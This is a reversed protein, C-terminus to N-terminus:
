RRLRAVETRIRDALVAAPDASGLMVALGEAADDALAWAEDVQGDFQGLAAHAHALHSVAVMAEVADPGYAELQVEYRRIALELTDLRDDMGEDELSVEALDLGPPQAEVLEAPSASPPGANRGDLEARLLRQLVKQAAPHWPGQVIVRIRYAETLLDVIENRDTAFATVNEAARATEVQDGSIRRWGAAVERLMCAAEVPDGLAGYSAALNTLADLARPHGEGYVVQCLEHVEHKVPLAAAQGRARGLAISRAMLADVTDPLHSGARARIEHITTYAALAEEHRGLDGYTVAVNNWALLTDPHEPGLQDRLAAWARQELELAGAADGQLSRAVSLGVLAVLATPNTDGLVTRCAEYLQEYLDLAARADGIETYVRAAENILHWEDVDRMAAAVALVHPLHDILALPFPHERGADMQGILATLVASRLCERRAPDVDTFRAARRVLAHVTWLTGDVSPQALFRADLVALGDSVLREASDDTLDDALALARCLLSRPIPAPAVLGALRLLDGAVGTAAQVARLLTAVVSARHETPLAIRLDDALQLVARDHVRLQAVLETFGGFGPSDAVGAALALALPHRGVDDAFDRAAQYERRDGHLQQLREAALVAVAAGVDLADLRIQRAPPLAGGVDHQATLLTRGNDTPAIMSELTARDLCSPVDDVIWLYPPSGALHEEIPGAALRRAIEAIQRGQLGRIAEPAGRTPGQSGFGRFVYVGGPFDAAFLRAYHEALMTKGQGGPGTIAVVQGAATPDDPTLADHIRWLELERGHLVGGPYLQGPYYRPPPPDPAAGLPRDDERRLEEVREAIERATAELSQGQAPLRWMKLQSPRVNAFDVDRIVALVRTRRRDLARSRLLSVHLEQRCYESAPFAPTYLTVLVLCARLADDIRETILDFDRMGVDDQFVLLGAQQMAERLADAQKKDEWAYCLFVDATV